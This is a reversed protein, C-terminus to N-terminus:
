AGRRGWLAALELEIADFPELQPREEDSHAAVLRYSEGDLRFVEVTRARPDVLWVHPVLERAYLRMKDVRDLRRTSESLVECAWDPPIVNFPGDPYEPLREVRWGALDPVVIDPELGLHLEPEHLIWWGRVGRFGM